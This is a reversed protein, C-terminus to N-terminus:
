VYGEIEFSFTLGSTPGMSVRGFSILDGTALVISGDTNLTGAYYITEGESCEQLISISKIRKVKRLGSPVTGATDTSTFRCTYSQESFGEQGANVPRPATKSLVTIAM